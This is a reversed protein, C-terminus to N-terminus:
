AAAEAPARPLALLDKFYQLHIMFAHLDGEIRLEGRKALALLDHWGPAPPSQWYHDWAAVSGALTFEWPTLPPWSDACEIRGQHIDLLLSRDGVGVLCRATVWRARRQLRADGPAHALAARLRAMLAAAQDGQAASM